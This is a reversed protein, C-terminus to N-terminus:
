ATKGATGIKRRNVFLGGLLGVGMLALSAPEPVTLETTVRKDDNLSLTYRGPAFAITQATFQTGGVRTTDEDILAVGTNSQDRSITTNMQFPNTSVGGSGITPGTGPAWDFVKAGSADTLVFSVASSAQANTPFVSDSDACTPPGDVCAVMKLIADFSFKLSTAFVFDFTTTSGVSGSGGGAGVANLYSEAVAWTDTLNGSIGPPSGPNLESTIISADGRSYNNGINLNQAPSNTSAIGLNADPINFPATGAAISTPGNSDNAFGTLGASDTLKFVTSTPVLFPSSEIKLNFINNFAYAYADAQASQSVSLGTLAALSVAVLSKKM